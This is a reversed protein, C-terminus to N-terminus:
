DQASNVLMVLMYPGHHASQEIADAVLRVAAQKFTLDLQILSAIHAEKGGTCPDGACTGLWILHIHLTTM